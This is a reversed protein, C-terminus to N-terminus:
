LLASDFTLKLMGFKSLAYLTFITCLLRYSTMIPFFYLVYGTLPIELCHKNIIWIVLHTIKYKNQEVYVDGCVNVMQIEIKKKKFIKIM